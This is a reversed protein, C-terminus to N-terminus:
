YPQRRCISDPLRQQFDVDLVKRDDLSNHWGVFLVFFPRRLCPILNLGLVGVPAPTSAPRSPAEFNVANDLIAQLNGGNQGNASSSASANANENTGSNAQQPAAPKAYQMLQRLAENGAPLGPQQQRQDSM